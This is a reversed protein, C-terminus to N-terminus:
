YIIFWRNIFKFHIPHTPKSIHPLDQTQEVFLLSFPNSCIPLRGVQLMKNSFGKSFSVFCSKYKVLTWVTLDLCLALFILWNTLKMLGYLKKKHFRQDPTKSKISNIMMWLTWFNMEKCFHLYESNIKCLNCYPLKWLRSRFPFNTNKM